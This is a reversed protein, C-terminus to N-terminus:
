VYWGAEYLVSAFEWDVTDHPILPEDRQISATYHTCLAQVHPLLAKQEEWLSPNHVAIRPPVPWCHKLLTIANKFSRQRELPSMRLHCSAQVLRHMRLERHAESQSVLGSKLLATKCKNRKYPTNIFALEPDNAKDAGELLLRIQIRDPDLFSMLKILSQPEASLRDFNMNWVTRLSYKYTSGQNVLRVEESDEILERNGYAELFDAFSVSDNLILRSAQYIGLPLYDIRRVIGKAGALEDLAEEELFNSQDFRTWKLLLNVASEEDLVTLEIGDFQKTLSTDRSTILISGRDAYPWFETLLVNKDEGDANDIVM